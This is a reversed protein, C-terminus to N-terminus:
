RGVTGAPPHRHLRLFVFFPDGKELGRLLPSGRGPRMLCWSCAACQVRQVSCVARQVSDDVGAIRPMGTARMFFVDRTQGPERGHGEDVGQPGPLGKSTVRTTRSLDKGVAM